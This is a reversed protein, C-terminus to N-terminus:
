PAAGLAIPALLSPTAGAWLAYAGFAVAAALMLFSYHYVFGTQERRLQRAAFQAAAAFGNPGAGDIIKQDGVKWFM